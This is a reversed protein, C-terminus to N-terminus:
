NANTGCNSCYPGSLASGCNHCFKGRGGPANARLRSAVRDVDPKLGDLKQVVNVAKGQFDLEELRRRLADKVLDAASTYGHAKGSEILRRARELLEIPIAVTTWQKKTPM